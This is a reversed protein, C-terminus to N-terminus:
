STKYTCQKRITEDFYIHHLLHVAGRRNNGATFPIREMFGPNRGGQDCGSSIQALIHTRENVSTAIKTFRAVM